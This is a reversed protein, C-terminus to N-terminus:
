GREWIRQEGEGRLREGLDAAGRRGEAQAEVEHQCGIANSLVLRDSQHM